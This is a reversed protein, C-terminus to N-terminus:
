AKKSNQKKCKREKYKKVLAEQREFVEKEFKERAKRKIFDNEIKSLLPIRKGIIERQMMINIM